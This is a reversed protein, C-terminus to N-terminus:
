GAYVNTGKNWGTVSIWLKNLYNTKYFQDGSSLATATPNESSRLWTRKGGHYEREPFQPLVHDKNAVIWKTYDENAFMVQNHPTDDFQISWEASDDTPSGYVETGRLFDAAKFWTRQGNPLHRVKTWNCTTLTM